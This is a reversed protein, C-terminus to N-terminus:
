ENKKFQLIPANTKNVAGVPYIRQNNLQYGLNGFAQIMHKTEVQSILNCTKRDDTTYRMGPKNPIEETITYGTGPNDIIITDPSCYHTLEEFVHLPAHSHYIVGLLFAVDVKGVLKLDLHMDGYIAKCQSIQHKLQMLPMQAAELVILTKPNHKIIEYTHFGDFCGIELTIKGQTLKFYHENLFDITIKDM